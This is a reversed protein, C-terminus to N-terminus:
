AVMRVIFSAAVWGASGTEDILYVVIAVFSIFDGINSVTYGALLARWRRHRWAGRFTGPEPGEVQEAGSPQVAVARLRGPPRRASAPGDGPAACPRGDERRPDKDRRPACSTRSPAVGGGDHRASRHRRIDRDHRAAIGPDGVLEAQPASPHPAPRAGLVTPPPPPPPPGAPQIAARNPARVPLRHLRETTHLDDRVVADVLVAKGPTVSVHLLGIGLARRAGNLRALTDRAATM